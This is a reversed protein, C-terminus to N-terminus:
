YFIEWVSTVTATQPDQKAEFSVEDSCKSILTMDAAKDFIADLVDANTQYWITSTLLNIM